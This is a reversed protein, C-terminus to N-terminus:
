KIHKWSKFKIIDHIVSQTVNYKSALQYQNLEKNKYTNRIDIIDHNKLKSIKVSEGKIQRNSKVKHSMNDKHTGWKLNLYYNNLPNNDLHMVELFNNSNEIFHLAVLRHVTFKKSKGNNRLTVYLYGRNNKCLKLITEKYIKIGRNQPMKRQKELSKVDGYNSIEYLGEYGIIPKWIEKTLEKAM